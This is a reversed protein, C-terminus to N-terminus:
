LRRIMGGRVRGACLAGRIFWHQVCLIGAVVFKNDILSTQLFEEFKAALTSTWYHVGRTCCSSGHQRIMQLAM